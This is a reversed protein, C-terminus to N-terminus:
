DTLRKVLITAYSGRPLEFSLTLKKRGEYLDDRDVSCSMGAPRIMVRRMGKSFFSDRPYKVRLERLEISEEQLVADLLEGPLGDPRDIRACPLQLEADNLKAATEASLGLPFVCHGSLLDFPTVATDCHATIFRALWRNWLASQYASLYLGRLDVNIRVLAGRFDPQRGATVSDALHKVISRRQSHDLRQQCEAWQGWSERLLHKQQKESASDNVHPDALALWLAREWDSRCWARAIWDGSEGLSGFRQDDFYNPLGTEQVQAIAAEALRIEADQMERLVLQFRNAHFDVPTFPASTQGLYELDMSSQHLAKRPGSHITLHQTTVAHRDKLGGFSIRKRQVKWREAIASIAEPTGMSKKTLRYMAFSGGSAVVSTLEDVQFDEPLRRLKM